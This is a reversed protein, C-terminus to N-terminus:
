SFYHDDLAFTQALSYYFPLDAQTYFGMTDDDTPTEGKDVQETLDNLSVFGNNSGHLSNNPDAFSIEQHVGVWSHDLDPFVCLRPDHFAVVAASGDAEPNSNTCTLAGGSSSCSLADVCKNDGAACPGAHYPSGPAYPLAGLYNDFSHNEQMMVIVHNVRQLGMAGPITPPTGSGGGGCGSLVLLHFLLLTPLIAVRVSLKTFNM